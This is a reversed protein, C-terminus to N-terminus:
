FLGNDLHGAGLIVESRDRVQFIPVQNLSGSILREGVCEVGDNGNPLFGLKVEIRRLGVEHCASLEEGDDSIFQSKILM